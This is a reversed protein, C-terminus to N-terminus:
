WHLHLLLFFVSTTNGTSQSIPFETYHFPSLKSWEILYCQLETTVVFTLLDDAWDLMNFTIVDFLVCMIVYQAHLAIRVNLGSCISVSWLGTEKKNLERTHYKETFEKYIIPEEFWIFWNM